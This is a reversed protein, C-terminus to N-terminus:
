GDVQQIKDNLVAVKLETIAQLNALHTDNVLKTLDTVDEGVKKIAKENKEIADKMPGVKEEMIAIAEKKTFTNISKKFMFGGIGAIGAAILAIIWKAAATILGTEAPM